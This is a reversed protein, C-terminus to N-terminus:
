IIGPFQKTVTRYLIGHKVYADKTYTLRYTAVFFVPHGETANLVRSMFKCKM